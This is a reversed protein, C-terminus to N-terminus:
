GPKHAVYKELSGKLRPTYTAEEVRMEVNVESM